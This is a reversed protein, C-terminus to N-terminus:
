TLPLFKGQLGLTQPELGIRVLTIKKKKKKKKKQRSPFRYIHIYNYLFHTSKM